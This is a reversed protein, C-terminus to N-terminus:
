KEVQAEREGVLRGARWHRNEGPVGRGGPGEVDQNERHGLPLNPATSEETSNEPILLALCTLGPTGSNHNVVGFLSM